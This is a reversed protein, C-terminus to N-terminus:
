SQRDADVSSRELPSPEELVPFQTVPNADGLLHVFIDHRVSELHRHMALAAAQPDNQRVAEYIARHEAFSRPARGSINLTAAREPILERGLAGVLETLTKNGAAQLLAAHFDLDSQVFAPVDGSETATKMARLAEMLKALETPGARRAALRAAFTECGLRVELTELVFGRHQAVWEIWSASLEKSEGSVARVFCGGGHRIEVLNLAALFQLAERVTGRSLSFEAALQREGPLRDGPKLKLSRILKRIRAVADDRRLTGGGPARATGPLAPAREKKRATVAMEGM